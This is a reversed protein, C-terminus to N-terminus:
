ASRIKKIYGWSWCGSIRRKVSVDEPEKLDTPLEIDALEEVSANFTVIAKVNLKRSNIMNVTFDEVTGNVAVTDSPLTGEM